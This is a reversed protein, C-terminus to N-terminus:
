LWYVGNPNLPVKQYPRMLYSNQASVPRSGTGRVPLPDPEGLELLLKASHGGTAERGSRRSWCGAHGAGVVVVDYQEDFM